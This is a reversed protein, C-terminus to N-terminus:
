FRVGVTAQVWANKYRPTTSTNDGNNNKLDWGARASLVVHDFNFDVGAVASMINKRINDNKFVQEQQVTSSSNVLVDKQNLLYSFQPGVL